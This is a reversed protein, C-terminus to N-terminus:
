PKPSAFQECFERVCRYEEIIPIIRYALRIRNLMKTISGETRQLKHSIEALAVGEMHLECLQVIEQDTWMQMHKEPLKAKDQILINTLRTLDGSIEFSDLSIEIIGKRCMYVLIEATIQDGINALGTFNAVKQVTTNGSRKIIFDIICLEIKHIGREVQEHLKKM